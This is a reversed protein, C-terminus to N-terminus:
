GKESPKKSQKGKIQLRGDNIVTALDACDFRIGKATILIAQEASHLKFLQVFTLEAFYIDSYKRIIFNKKVKAVFQHNLHLVNIILMNIRSEGQM